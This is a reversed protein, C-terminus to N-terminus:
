RLWLLDRLGSARETRRAIAARLSAPHHWIEVAERARTIGTYILERTAIPTDRDPLVLLVRGFESGQSKHVTMAFVTEHAPLRAPLIRRLAGTADLFWVRLEGAAEADPLVLGVDGNFLGLTYDNTTILVPRGRFFAAEPEILGADALTQEALRNLNEVGFPGRRLACLIRFSGLQLLAARPDDTAVCARYGEIVRARLLGALAAPAPLPASAIDAHTGGALLALAGAADGANVLVSLRHIGSDRTFRRNERLEVIHRGIPALSGAANCIDGLVNGAEVAALQDKDGLLVIRAGAPVAAFLKAMLALDVMSAEDVIVADVALPREADHRFFPSDPITGLLRHLTTAEQKLATCFDANGAATRQISEKMRAAAKGTPAALAVRLRSGRAAAQEHLLALVAVVTWTKGTGPGGTIVTFSRRVATEAAVRQWDTEKGAEGFFRALGRQLLAEDCAPDAGVRKLIAAALQAEYQWYRQLYLRDGDLILPKFSGPAGVVETGRLTAALGDGAIQGLPVCIHGAARWASVTRAALALAAHPAGHLRQMLAAFHADLPTTPIDDNMTPSFVEAIAASVAKRM